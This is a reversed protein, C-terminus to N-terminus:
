EPACIGVKLHRCDVDGPFTANMEAIKEALQGVVPSTIPVDEYNRSVELIQMYTPFSVEGCRSCEKTDPMVRTELYVQYWTQGLRVTEEVDYYIGAM